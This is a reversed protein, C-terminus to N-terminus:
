RKELSHLPGFHYNQKCFLIDLSGEKSYSFISACMWLPVFTQDNFHLTKFM